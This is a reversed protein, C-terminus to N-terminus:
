GMSCRGKMDLEEGNNNTFVIRYNFSKKATSRGELDSKIVINKIDKGQYLKGWLDMIIMNIEKM